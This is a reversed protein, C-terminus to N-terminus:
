WIGKKILYQVKLEKLQLEHLALELQASVQTNLESIYETSTIIGQTLQANVQQLIEGQLAILQRDQIMLANIADAKKQYQQDLLEQQFQFTEAQTEILQSQVSLWDKQKQSQKGDWINWHFSVGGIAFPSLNTDFFNLPNAYGVGAQVFASVKPTRKIDLLKSEALLLAKQQDFLGLEPRRSDEGFTVETLTPTALATEVSLPQGIWDGLLALLSEEQGQVDLRRKALKVMEVELKSINIALVVGHKAAATLNAQRQQLDALTNALVEDQARRLLIGFYLQQVQEKIPFLAVDLAHLDKELVLQQLDKNAALLGGDYLLYSADLSSQGNFKPVTFADEQGPLTFPLSVTESQYTARANWDITPMRQADLQEIKLQTAERLLPKQKQLPYRAIALDQCESLQLGPGTQAVLALMLSSLICTMLLSFLWKNDM